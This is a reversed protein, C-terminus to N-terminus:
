LEMTQGGCINIAQGTIYGSADSALFAALRGVEHIQGLRHLPISQETAQQREAATTNLFRAELEFRWKELDTDVQGPCIANARIKNGSLELAMVKTLMIVGAKSVAYAGNFLPPTKGARSAINVISGGQNMMLPLMAQTTWLVGNLNVDLTKQWATKDYTSVAAPVGFTAGANNVLIDLQGFAKKTEDALRAVSDPNTVDAPCFATRVGFERSLKAAAEKMGDMDGTKVLSPDDAPRGIDTVMINVGNKALAGAIGFGIGTTKGSGTVLATKGKLDPYM